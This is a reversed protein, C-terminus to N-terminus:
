LRHHKEHNLDMLYSVSDRDFDFNMEVRMSELIDRLGDKYRNYDRKNGKSRNMNVKVMYTQYTKLGTLFGVSTPVQVHQDVYNSILLTLM